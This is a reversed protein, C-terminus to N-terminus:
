LALRQQWFIPRAEGEGQREGEAGRWPGRKRLLLQLDDRGRGVELREDFGDASVAYGDLAKGTRLVIRVCDLQFGGLQRPQPIRRQHHPHSQVV